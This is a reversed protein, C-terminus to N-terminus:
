VSGECGGKEVMESNWGIRSMHKDWSTDFSVLVLGLVLRDKPNGQAEQGEQCYERICPSLQPWKHLATSQLWAFLLTAVSRPWPLCSGPLLSLTRSHGGGGGWCAWHRVPLRHPLTTVWFALDHKQCSQSGACPHNQDATGKKWLVKHKIENSWLHEQEVFYDVDRYTGLFVDCYTFTM